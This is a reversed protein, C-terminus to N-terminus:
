LDARREAEQWSGGFSFSWIEGKTKRQRKQRENIGGTSESRDANGIARWPKWGSVVMAAELSLRGGGFVFIWIPRKVKNWFSTFNKSKSAEWDASPPWFTEGALRPSFLAAPGPGSAGVWHCKQRRGRKTEGEGGGAQPAMREAEVFHWWVRLSTSRSTIVGGVGPRGNEM